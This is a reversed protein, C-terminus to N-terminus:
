HKILWASQERRMVNLLQKTMYNYGTDNPHYNDAESIWSNKVHTEGTLTATMQQNATKSVDTAQTMLLKKQTKTQYQGFTLDFTGVYYSNKDQKAVERNVTNFLQVDQNIDVRKPFHVFVPNYNGFIFIPAQQNYNRINKFLTNLKYQYNSQESKIAASLKAPSKVFVNQLLSQQLDNGGATLVIVDAQKIAKQLNPQTTLRKQIQDSRDGAKGFNSMKVSVRYNAKIKKAIRGSYGQEQKNDGVGETLSDGLAVLNIHKVHALKAAQVPDANKSKQQQKQWGFVGVGVLMVLLLLGAIIKKM